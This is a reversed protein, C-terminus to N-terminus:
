AAPTGSHADNTRCPLLMEVRLGPLANEARVQSHHLLVVRRVISLGLGVGGEHGDRSEAVRFFSDFIRGLMDEPVGPGYDRVRIIIGSPCDDLRVDITSNKPSYRVANRLINEIARRLLEPDAELVAQSAISCAINVQHAAAEFACDDVIKKVLPAIPLALGKHTAPDGEASTMELLTGVLRALRDIERRMRSLAAEPDRANKMLEAAFSLRALPSRLEHSVDQLLRREATLLTAIRDAMGNFSRSVKGIEDGRSDDARATLDGRGFSDVANALKHLPSIISVSLWVGLLAVLLVAILFYPLLITLSIPPPAVTVFRYRGDASSIVIVFHGNRAVPFGLWNLETRRLTSRDEGTALDRGSTDTLYRQGKLATDVERLYAALPSPGGSEYARSAQSLQLKMSGEFFEGTARRSISGSFWMMAAATCLLAFSFTVLIRLHLSRM